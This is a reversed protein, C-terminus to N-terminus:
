PSRSSSKGDSDGAWGQDSAGQGSASEDDMKADADSDGSGQEDDLMDSDKSEGAGQEVGLIESGDDVPMEEHQPEPALSRARSLEEFEAFDGESLRSRLIGCLGADFDEAQEVITSLGNVASQHDGQRLLGRVARVAMATNDADKTLHGLSCAAEDDFLSDHHQQKTAVGVLSRQVVSLHERFRRLGDAVNAVLYAPRLTEALITGCLVNTALLPLPTHQRDLFSQLDQILVVGVEASGVVAQGPIRAAVPVRAAARAGEVDDESLEAVQIRPRREYVQQVTAFDIHASESELAIRLTPGPFAADPNSRLSELPKDFRDSSIWTLSDGVHAPLAFPPLSSVPVVLKWLTDPHQVAAAPDRISPSAYSPLGQARVDAMWMENRLGQKVSLYDRNTWKSVAARTWGRLRSGPVQQPLVAAQVDLGLSDVWKSVVVWDLKTDDIKFAFHTRKLDDEYRCHAFRFPHMYGLVGREEHWAAWHLFYVLAVAPTVHPVSHSDVAQAGLPRLLNVFPERRFRRAARTQQEDVPNHTQIFRITVLAEVVLNWDLPGEQPHSRFFTAVAYKVAVPVVISEVGFYLRRWSLYQTETAGSLKMTDLGPALHLTGTIYPEPVRNHDLCYRVHDLYDRPTPFRPNPAPKMLAPAYFLRKIYMFVDGGVKSSLILASLHEKKCSPLAILQLGKISGDDLNVNAPSAGSSQAFLSNGRKASIGVYTILLTDKLATSKGKLTYPTTARPIISNVAVLLRARSGADEDEKADIEIALADEELGAQQIDRVLEPSMHYHQHDDWIKKDLHPNIPRYLGEDNPEDYWGKPDM